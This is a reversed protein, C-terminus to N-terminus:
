GLKFGHQGLAGKLADVADARVAVATEGLRAGLYRRLSPENFIRDLVDVSTTRLVVMSELTVQALAGAQTLSLLRILPAPLAEAHKKLFAEIHAPTIGQEHALEISHTTIRYTFPEGDSLWEAFRAVQYRDARSAKRTVWLTGDPKLHVKEPTEAPQPFPALGVFGRGYANLRVADEATDMLGLWHLPAYLLFEILAGEVADWSEFGRLYEDHSNRIYWSDYDGNPRQFHPEHAKVTDIFDQVGWWAKANSPPFKHLFGVIAHRAVVSDYAFAEPDPHLGTVHWMDQYIDGDRWAEALHKIQAWRPLSLWKQSGERRPYARGDQVAILDASVGICLMFTLREADPKLLHPLIREADVPLFSDGEVGASYLRLYALLTTMDDVIATDALRPAEIDEEDLPALAQAQQPAGQPAEALLDDKLNAYQTKHIPLVAVLEQPVFVIPVINGKSDKDFGEALLGRYYLAQTVTKPQKHPREREIQNRGMKDLKGHLLEFQTKLMKHQKNALLMQLAGRARDDLMDWVREAREPTHMADYLAQPLAEGKVKSANIGWVDALALHIGADLNQLVVLLSEM